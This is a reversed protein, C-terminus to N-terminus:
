SREEAAPQSAKSDGDEVEGGYLFVCMTCTSYYCLLMIISMIIEIVVEM